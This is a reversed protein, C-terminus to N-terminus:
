NVIITAPVTRVEAEFRDTKVLDVPIDLTFTGSQSPVVEITEAFVRGRFPKNYEVRQPLVLVSPDSSLVASFGPVIKGGADYGAMLTLKVPQNITTSVTVPEFFLRLEDGAQARSLLDMSKFSATLVVLAPLVAVVLLLPFLKGTYKQLQRIYKNVTFTPPIVKKDDDM